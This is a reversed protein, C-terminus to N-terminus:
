CNTCGTIAAAAAAASTATIATTIDATAAVSLIYMLSCLLPKVFLDSLLLPVAANVPKHDYLLV